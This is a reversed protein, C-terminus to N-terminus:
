IFRRKMSKHCYLRDYVVSKLLVQSVIKLTEESTFFVFMQIEKTYHFIEEM